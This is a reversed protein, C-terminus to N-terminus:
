LIPPSVRAVGANQRFDGRHQVEKPQGLDGALAHWGWSHTRGPETDLERARLAGPPKTSALRKM